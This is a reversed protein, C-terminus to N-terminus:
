RSFLQCLEEFETRLESARGLAAAFSASVEASITEEHVFQRARERFRAADAVGGQLVNLPAVGKIGWAQDLLAYLLLRERQIGLNGKLDLSTGPTFAVFNIPSSEISTLHLPLLTVREANAFTIDRLPNLRNINQRAIRLNSCIYIVDIRRVQGRLHEISKALIGRAILTKGLGVEDAVLFRHTSDPATYLR